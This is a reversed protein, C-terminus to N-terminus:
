ALLFDGASIDALHVHELILRDSGGHIVLHDGRQRMHHDAFDGFDSGDYFSVSLKDIGVEFDTVREIGSHPQLVFTDSGEGGILVDRGGGGWLTDNGGFGYLRNRHSNGTLDNDLDNGM